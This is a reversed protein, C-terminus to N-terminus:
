VGGPKGQGRFSGQLNFWEAEKKKGSSPAEAAGEGKRGNSAM